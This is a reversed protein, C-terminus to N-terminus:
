RVDGAEVRSALAEVGQAIRDFTTAFTEDDHGYPDAILFPRREFFDGLLHTKAAGEPWRRRVRACQYGEMAIILDAWDLDDARM